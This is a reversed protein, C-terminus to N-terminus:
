SVPAIDGFSGLSLSQPPRRAPQPRLHGPAPHACAAPRDTAALTVGPATRQLAHNPSQNSEPSIHFLLRSSTAGSYFSVSSSEASVSGSAPVCRGPSRRAAVRLAARVLGSGSVFRGPGRWAGVRLAVRLCGSGLQVSGSTPQCCGSSSVCCGPASNVRGPSQPAAVRFSASAVRVGLRVRRSAHQVLGSLLQVRRSLPVCRGSPV